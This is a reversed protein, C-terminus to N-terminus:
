LEPKGPKHKRIKSSKTVAPFGGCHCRVGPAVAMLAWGKPYRRQMRELQPAMEPDYLSKGSYECFGEEQPTLQPAVPADPFCHTCATVKYKGVM